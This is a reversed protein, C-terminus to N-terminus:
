RSNRSARFARRRLSFGHRYLQPRPRYGEQLTRVSEDDEAGLWASKGISWTGFGVESIELGTSGLQRYHMCGEEERYRSTIYTRDRIQVIKFMASLVLSTLPSDLPTVQGLSRSNGRNVSSGLLSM